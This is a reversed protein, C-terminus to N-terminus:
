ADVEAKVKKTRPKRVKPVKVQHQKNWYDILFRTQEKHTQAKCGLAESFLKANRPSLGRVTSATHSMVHRHAVEAEM